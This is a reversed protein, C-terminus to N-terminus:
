IKATVGIKRAIAIIESLSFEDIKGNVLDQVQEVSLGFHEARTSAKGPQSHLRAEILLLYDSRRKFDDAEDPDDCLAEWVSEYKM